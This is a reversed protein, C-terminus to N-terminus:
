FPPVKFEIDSGRKARIPAITRRRNQGTSDRQATERHRLQGGMQFGVLSMGGTKKTLNTSFLKRSAGFQSIVVTPM